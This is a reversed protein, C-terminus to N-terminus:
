NFIGCGCLCGELLRLRSLAFFHGSAFRPTKRDARVFPSSKKSGFGPRALCYTAVYRPLCRFFETTAHTFFNATIFLHNLVALM